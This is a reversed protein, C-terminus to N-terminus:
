TERLGSHGSHVCALSGGIKIWTIAHSLRAVETLRMMRPMMAPAASRSGAATNVAVTTPALKPNDTPHTTRIQM